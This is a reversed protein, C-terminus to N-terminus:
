KAPPNCVKCPTLGRSLAEELTVEIDTKLYQCGARHYKSGTKTVHVIINKSNDPEKVTSSGNKVNNSDKKSKDTVTTSDKKDKDATKNDKTDATKKDAEAKLDSDSLDYPKTNATIKKGDSELVITGQKDTRYLKINKDKLIQLIEDHPHGYQNGEGASIVAIDPSVADLFKESNSTFSGHHGLKLVDADLNIGTKLMENESQEEADGTFIFSNSGNQLKIAVSYNNLNDYDSNSPALIVFSANGLTYENGVVAKTIKLGKDSITDLLNEYTNSTHVADPMIIKGINFHNIVDALGGIHDSHPHTAIIFDLKKVGINELYNIVVKSQDSEGADILMYKNNSEVLISDGQGVDIFHVKLKSVKKDSNKTKPSSTLEPKAEDGQSAQSSAQGPENSKSTKETDRADQLIDPVQIPNGSDNAIIGINAKNNGTDAGQTYEIYSCGTTIFIFAVLIWLIIKKM